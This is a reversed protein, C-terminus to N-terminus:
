DIREKQFWLPASFLILHPRHLLHHYPRNTQHHFAVITMTMDNSKAPDRRCTCSNNVFHIHNPLHHLINTYIQKQTALKLNQELFRHKLAHFHFVIQTNRGHDLTWFRFPTGITRHCIVAVCIMKCEFKHIVITPQHISCFALLYSVSKVSFHMSQMFFITM